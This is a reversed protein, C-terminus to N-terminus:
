FITTRKTRALPGQGDIGTLNAVPFFLKKKDSLRPLAGQIQGQNINLPVPLSANQSTVLSRRTVQPSAPKRTDLDSDLDSEREEDSDLDRDPGLYRDWDLDNAPENVDLDPEPEKEPVLDFDPSLDSDPDPDNVPGIDSWRQRYAPRKPKKAKRDNKTKRDTNANKHDPKKLTNKGKQIDNLTPAYSTSFLCSSLYSSPCVPNFLQLVVLDQTRTM